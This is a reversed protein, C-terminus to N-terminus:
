VDSIEKKLEDDVLKKAFEYGERWAKHVSPINPERGYMKKFVSEASTFSFFQNERIMELVAIDPYPDKIIWRFFCSNISSKLKEYKNNYKLKFEEISM